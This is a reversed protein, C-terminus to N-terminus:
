ALRLLLGVVWCCCSTALMMLAYRRYLQQLIGGIVRQLREPPLDSRRDLLLWTETRRYDNRPAERSRIFLVVSILLTGTAAAQLALVPLFSFGIVLCGLALLAFGLGRRISTEACQRIRDVDM